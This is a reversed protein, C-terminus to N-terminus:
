LNFYNKIDSQNFIKLFHVHRELYPKTFQITGFPSGKLATIQEKISIIQSLKFKYDLLKLDYSFDDLNLPLLKRFMKRCGNPVTAVLNRLMLYVSFIRIAQHIGKPNSSSVNWSNYFNRKFRQERSNHPETFLDTLELQYKQYLYKAFEIPKLRRYNYITENNDEKVPKLSHSLLRRITWVDTNFWRSKQYRPIKAVELNHYISTTSENTFATWYLRYKQGALLMYKNVYHKTIQRLQNSNPGLGSNVNNHFTGIQLWGEYEPSVGGIVYIIQM